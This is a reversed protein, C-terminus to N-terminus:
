KQSAIRLRQLTINTLHRILNNGQLILIFADVVVLFMADSCKKRYTYSKLLVAVNLWVHIFRTSENKGDCTMTLHPEATRNM